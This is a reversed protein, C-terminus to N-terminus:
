NSCCYNWFNCKTTSQLVHSFVKKEFDKQFIDTADILACDDRLSDIYKVIKMYQEVKDDIDLWRENCWKQFGICWEWREWLPSFKLFNQDLTLRDNYTLIGSHPLIQSPPIKTSNETVIIYHVKPSTGIKRLRWTDVLHLLYRHVIARSKWLMEAIESPTLSSSIRFCDLVQQLSQFTYHIKM